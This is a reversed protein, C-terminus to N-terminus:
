RPLQDLIVGPIAEARAAPGAMATYRAAEGTAGAERLMTGLEAAADAMLRAGRARGLTAIADRLLEIADSRRGQARLARALTVQATAASAQDRVSQAEKLARRAARAAEGPQGMALHIAAIGAMTVSRQRPSTGRGQLRLAEGLTGLAEQFRGQESQILGIQTLVRSLEETAQAEELAARAAGLAELAADLRRRHRHLLAQAALARGRLGHLRLRAALEVARRYARQAREVGGLHARTTGLLILARINEETRAAKARQMATTGAELLPLAATWAGRRVEVEGRVAQAMGLLHVLRQRRALAIAEDAWRAADALAQGALAVRARLLLDRLRLEGPPDPLLTRAADLLTVVERGGVAPDLLGALHALSQATERRLEDPDLLLAGISSNLRRALALVTEVSPHSRGSELLSIFSKSLDPAGLAQQTLGARGRALLLRRGFQVLWDPRTLPPSSLKPM